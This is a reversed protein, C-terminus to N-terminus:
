VREKLWKAMEPTPPTRVPGRKWVRRRAWGVSEGRWRKDPDSNGITAWIPMDEDSDAYIDEVLTPSKAKQFWDQGIEAAVKRALAEYHEQKTKTSSNDVRYRTPFYVFGDTQYIEELSVNQDPVGLLKFLVKLDDVQAGKIGAIIHLTKRQVFEIMVTNVINVLPKRAAIERPIDKSPWMSCRLPNAVNSFKVGVERANVKVMDPINALVFPIYGPRQADHGVEAHILVSCNRFVVPLAENLLKKNTFLLEFSEMSNCRLGNADITFDFKQPVTTDDPTNAYPGDAKQVAICQVIIAEFIEGPVGMLTPSINNTMVASDAM